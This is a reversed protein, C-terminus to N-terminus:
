TSLLMTLMESSFSHPSLIPYMCQCLSSEITALRRVFPEKIDNFERSRFDLSSHLEAFVVINSHGSSLDDLSTGCAEKLMQPM